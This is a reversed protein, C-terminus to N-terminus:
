GDQQWTRNGCRDLKVHIVGVRQPKDKWRAQSQLCTKGDVNKGYTGLPLRHGFGDVM